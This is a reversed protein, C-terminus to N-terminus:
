ENRVRVRGEMVASRIQPAGLTADESRTTIQIDISRVNAATSTAVGSPDYYTIALSSVGGILTEPQGAAGTQNRQLLFPVSAGSLSYAVTISTSTEDLYTFTVANASSTTITSASRLERLMRELAVRANQQVEARGAGYQYATQGEQLTLLLGALLLGMVAMATLLEALTYGRENNMRPKMEPQHDDLCFVVQPRDVGDRHREAPHLERHRDRLAHRSGLDRHLVDLRRLRHRSGTALLRQLQHDVDLERRGAVAADRRERGHNARLHVYRELELQGRARDPRRDVVGLRRKERDLYDVFRRTLAHLAMSARHATLRQHISNGTDGARLIKMADRIPGKCKTLNTNRIEDAIPAFYDIWEDISADHQPPRRARVYRGITSSDSRVIDLAQLLDSAILSMDGMDYDTEALLDRREVLAFIMSRVQFLYGAHALLVEWERLM